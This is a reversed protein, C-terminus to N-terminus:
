SYIVGLKKAFEDDDGDGDLYEEEGDGDDGGYRDFDAGGHLESTFEERQEYAESAEDVRSEAIIGTNAELKSAVPQSDNYSSEEAGTTEMSALLSSVPECKGEKQNKDEIVDEGASSNGHKVTGIAEGRKRKLIEELPKPGDFSVLSGNQQLADPVVYKRKGLQEQGMVHHGSPEANKRNKLEALSKPGAFDDNDDSSTDRRFHPGRYNKLGNTSAGEIRGKIRDQIRGQISPLRTRVSSLRGNDARRIMKRDIPSSSRRPLRIRGQLRNSLSNEHQPAYREHRWLDEHSHYGAHKDHVQEHRITSRLVRPQKNRTLRDRLDLEARAYPRRHGSMRESSARDRELGYNGNPYGQSDYGHLYRYRDNDAEAVMNYDTLNDIDYENRGEYERSMGYPNESHYFDSNRGEDDVLVDFGPSPERSVDGVNKNDIMGPDDVQHPQKVSIFRNVMDGNSVPHSYDLLENICSTDPIRKNRSLENIHVGPKVVIEAVQQDVPGKIPKGKNTPPPIKKGLMSIDVKSLNSPETASATVPVVSAKNRMSNPVHTFSCWDGKLCLGSQFFKCPVGQISNADGVQVPTMAVTQLLPQASGTPTPLQTGILGDLPPHRFGCKPNLCNGNLWFWCDRPNVRAFDSHRYECESGKKCTLPSALFYVCDTNKKLAEEEASPPQPAAAGALRGGELEGTIM